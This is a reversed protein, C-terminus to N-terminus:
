FSAVNVVLLVNGAFEKLKRVTGWADKANFQYTLTHHCVLHTLMPLYAYPSM